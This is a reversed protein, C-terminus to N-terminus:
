LLMLLIRESPSESKVPIPILSRFEKVSIRLTSVTARWYRITSLTEAPWFYKRPASRIADEVVYPPIKVIKNKKDVVAGCGDFINLAEPNEVFIGTKELVELTALHIEYLEDDSFVNLSLGGSQKKGAHLNRKM